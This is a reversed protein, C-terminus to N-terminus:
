SSEIAYGLDEMFATLKHHHSFSHKWFGNSWYYKTFICFLPSLMEQDGTLWKGKLTFRVKLIYHTSHFRCLKKKIVKLMGNVVWMGALTKLSTSPKHFPLRHIEHLNCLLNLGKVQIIYFTHFQSSDWILSPLAPCQMKFFTQSFSHLTCLSWVDNYLPLFDLM